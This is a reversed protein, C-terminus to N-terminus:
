KKILDFMLCAIIKYHRSCCNYSDRLFADNENM